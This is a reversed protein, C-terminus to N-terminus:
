QIEGIVVDAGPFIAGFKGRLIEQSGPRATRRWRTVAGVQMVEAGITIAGFPPTM